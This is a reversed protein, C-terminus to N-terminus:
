NYHSLNLPLDANEGPEQVRGNHAAAGLLRFDRPGEACGDKVGPLSLLWLPPLVAGHM